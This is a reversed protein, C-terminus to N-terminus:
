LKMARCNTTEIYLLFSQDKSFQVGNPFVLGDLVVVNSTKTPTDYRLLKGTAEGELLIFLRLECEVPSIEYRYGDVILVGRLLYKLMSSLYLPIYCLIDELDSSIFNRM